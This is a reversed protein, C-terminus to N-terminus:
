QPVLIRTWAAELFNFGLVALFHASAAKLRNGRRWGLRRTLEVIMPTFAIWLLVISWDIALRRLFGIFPRHTSVWWMMARLLGLVAWATAVLPLVRRMAAIRDKIPTMASM